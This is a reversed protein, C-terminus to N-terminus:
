LDLSFFLIGPALGGFTGAEAINAAVGMFILFVAFGGLNALTAERTDLGSAQEVAINTFLFTIGLSLVGFPVALPAIAVFVSLAVPAFALGMTRMLEQFTVNAAFVRATLVYALYVWILWVFLQVITGAVLTKLFVSGTGLGDFDQQIAWVWSGLGALVSAAVVIIIAGTTATHEGRVEEFVTFDLRALRSLWASLNAYGGSRPPAKVRRQM